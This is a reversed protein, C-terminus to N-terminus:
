NVNILGNQTINTFSIKLLTQSDIELLVEPVLKSYHKQFWNETVKTSGIKLLRQQDIELLM